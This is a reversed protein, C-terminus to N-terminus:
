SAEKKAADGLASEVRATLADLEKDSWHAAHAITRVVSREAESIGDSACAVCLAVTLGQEVADCDLLIEALHRARPELGAELIVRLSAQVLHGIMDATYKTGLLASFLYQLMEAERDDVTGDANAVLAGLDVIPSLAYGGADFRSALDSVAKEIIPHPQMSGRCDGIETRRAVPPKPARPGGVAIVLNVIWPALAM